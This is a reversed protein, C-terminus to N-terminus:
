SGTLAPQAFASLQERTVVAPPEIVRCSGDDLVLAGGHPLQAPAARPGSLVAAKARVEAEVASPALATAQVVGTFAPTGTAPDLLHHAPRGDRDLWSRRSIGSTAVGGRRLSFTHLTSGDFPSAVRVPRAAGEADGVAVDGACDLAFSAHSALVSALVDAFLGKALGGSDLRVGPPRTVTCAEADVELTRWAALASPRAPRREPALALATRLPVPAGLDRAYGADEIDRVLTADVLGGSLRGAMRAALVLRALLPSVPVQERPDDNLRSLESQPLFRSFRSHWRELERRAALAADEASGRASAGTVLVACTSGFCDFREVHEREGIV